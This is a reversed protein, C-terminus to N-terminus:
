LTDTGDEMRERASGPEPEPDALRLLMFPQPDMSRDFRFEYGKRDGNQVIARHETSEPSTDQVEAVLYEPLYPAYPRDKMFRWVEGPKPTDQTITKPQRPGSKAEQADRSPTTVRRAPRPDTISNYKFVYGNSLDQALEPIGNVSGEELIVANVCRGNHDFLWTEGVRPTQRISQEKIAKQLKADTYPSTDEPILDHILKLAREAHRHADSLEQRISALYHAQAASILEERVPEIIERLADTFETREKEDM